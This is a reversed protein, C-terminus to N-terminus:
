HLSSLALRMGGDCYSRGDPDGNGRSSVRCGGAGFDWSGGRLVRCSAKTTNVPDQTPSNSYYNEGYWDECWEWVNGSMDYIGLANPQKKHVPHTSGTEWDEGYWAVQDIKDSGSYEYGEKHKGGRAAYEWEAETPLRFKTGAPRQGETLENLKGVFDRCDDWSVNEVPYNDGKKFWSPNNGMVAKWLGQTVETEGIWFDSVKVEHISQEDRDVEKDESGMNFSGGEVGIMAFSVGKVEFQKKEKNIIRSVRPLEKVVKVIIKPFVTEESDNKKNEIQPAPQSLMALFEAVSQQRDKIRPSMAKLIARKVAESLHEPLKPLDDKFIETATPPVKGVVLHYLTAGLSYVDLTPQFDRVGDLQEIPAYGPTYGVTSSTTTLPKGNEDFMKTLGFDILVANNANRLMINGPKVDLHNEKKSHMMELAEGIQVIFKIAESESLARGKAYDSLSGGALYEMVYYVTDNEEFISYISVIHPHSLRATFKAEKKFREKYKAVLEANGFTPVTMITTVESRHCYDKM